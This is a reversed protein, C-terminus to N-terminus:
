RSSPSRTRKLSSVKTKKRKKDNVRREFPYLTTNLIFRVDFSLLHIRDTMRTDLMKKQGQAFCVFFFFPLFSFPFITLSKSFGARIQFFHDFIRSRSFIKTRPPPHRSNELTAFIRLPLSPLPPSFFVIPEIPVDGHLFFFFFYGRYDPSNYTGEREFGRYTYM